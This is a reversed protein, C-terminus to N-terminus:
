VHIAALLSLFHKLSPNPNHRLWVATLEAYPPRAPLPLFHVGHPQTEQFSSPLFAVGQGHAVLTLVTQGHVSEHVVRPSFGAELCLNVLLDHYIAGDSRTPLIFGEEAADALCFDTKQILPHGNALVFSFTERHLLRYEVHVDPPPNRMIGVDLAGSKLAEMQRTTGMETLYAQLQPFRLHMEDLLQPLISHLSSGAYGIRIAGKTGEEILKATNELSQLQEFIRQAESRVYGGAPTLRVKRQNREFLLVGLHAELEQIQRSLAPQVICLREAARRFHLEEALVLFSKLHRLEM